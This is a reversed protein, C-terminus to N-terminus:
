VTGKSAAAFMQDPTLDDHGLLTVGNTAALQEASRTFGNTAVVVGLDADYHRVAAAIEQVAKNGVPKAYHKCQVVLTQEGRTAVIDAGQDGSAQTVTATWGALRLREACFHEYEHPSMSPDFQHAFEPIREAAAQDIFEEVLNDLEGRRPKSKMGHPTVPPTQGIAPYVIGDCFRNVEKMWKTDDRIGYDDTRDLQRKRRLLAPLHSRVIQRVRERFEQRRRERNERVMKGITSHFLVAAGIGGILAPGGGLPSLLLVFVLFGVLFTVVNEKGAAQEVPM